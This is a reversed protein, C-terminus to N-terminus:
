RWILRKAGSPTKAFSVTTRAWMPPKEYRSIACIRWRGSPVTMDRSNRPRRSSRAKRRSTRVGEPSARHDAVLEQAGDIGIQIAFQGHDVDNAHMSMEHPALAAAPHHVRFNGQM